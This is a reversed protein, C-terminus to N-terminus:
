KKDNDDDDFLSIQEFDQAPKEEESPTSADVNEKVPLPLSKTNEDVLVSNEISVYCIREKIPFGDPRKAYKEMPTLYFDPFAVDIRSGDSMVADYNFPSPKELIKDLYVLVHPEKQFMNFLVTPKSLRESLAIHSMEFVRTHGRDTILAVKGGEEPLFSLIGALEKGKFSGAKMGGTRPNTVLVENENYYVARGDVSAIFVNSNGSSVCAGVLEDDNLLKIAPYAKSRRIVPFSSLNIRKVLGKKSLIMVYLDERFQRVAFASVLKEDPNLAVLQSVHFGEDNWKTEKIENVPIYLYNGKSTFVLMFDTTSCLGDYVFIDGSKIGPKAGNQGGSGKWSKVSSRKIYGDRTAVVYVDEQAILDRKDLQVSAAAEEQDRIETLRKGGYAKAIDTLDSIILDERKTQEDLLGKLLTLDDELTKKENELVTVDTHSLKYLPMMVIAEAQDESFGYRKELNLKSDAKDASQRIIKIVEDLISQAKLLGNVISLRAQDKKYRFESRRSIVDLQHQIYCDCYTILDMSRPHGDVIAMMNASYNTQLATKSMLYALIAEPKADEKLDIAIRLGDKDTEDRVEDIGPITKDHRIKDIAKVLESKNVQYPIESVIIQKIGDENTVIETRSSVMVKGHGTRYIDKLADSEYIIGGTPFDPGPIYKLLDDVECSPHKIRYIIAQTVEKLNHPPISTAIGVAIGESGNVLLNPFRAPLVDPEYLTDDFTLNMKVTDEDIDRLLENSLAALRAETYRYAAPGDGDISGNNGQFDILPYRYSWGQSMHVLALYISSDGHPHYKGMVDGVIHACKKTPKDITNGTNWMDFLIRRQVPKLGDRADPIARDQIVDRAYSAYKDGMIQDLSDSEINEKIEPESKKKAM